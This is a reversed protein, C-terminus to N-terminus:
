SLTAHSTKSIRELTLATAKGLRELHITGKLKSSFKTKNKSGLALTGFATKPDNLSGILPVFATSNISDADDGFFFKLVTKPFRDSCLCKGQAMREMIHQYAEQKAIDSSFFNNLNKPNEGADSYAVNLTGKLNVFDVDFFGASKEIVATMTEEATNCTLLINVLSYISNTLVDYRKANAVLQRSKKQHELLQKKLHASQRGAIATVNGEKPDDFNLLNLLKPERQLIDPQVKFLTMLAKIQDSKSLESLKLTTTKTIQKTM